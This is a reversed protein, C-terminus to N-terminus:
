IEKLKVVTAGWSGASGEQWYSEVEPLRDLISHVTRRLVGKGKGHV